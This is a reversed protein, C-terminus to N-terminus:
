TIQGRGRSEQPRSHAVAGLRGRPPSFKRPAASQSPPSPTEDRIDAPTALSVSHGSLSRNTRHHLNRGDKHTAETLSRGSVNEKMRTLGRAMAELAPPDIGKTVASLLKPRLRKIERLIPSAAPTLRLRRVRRDTPDTCREVLGLEELRDVLRAITMPTVEAVCALESQSVDPQRELRTLIILQARTVGIIQAKSNGYTSIQRAVDHLLVLLDNKFTAAAM